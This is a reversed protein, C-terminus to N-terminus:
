QAATIAEEETSQDTVHFVDQFMTLVREFHSGEWFVKGCRTCVYFVPIKPLLGPPVAHLQIPSGGPFTLSDPDLDSLSAWRCQDTYRPLASTASSTTAIPLEEEETQPLSQDTLNTDQDQLFGKQKLMRAMDARPVAAYEDSNCAKFTYM